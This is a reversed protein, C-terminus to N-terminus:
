DSREVLIFEHKSSCNLFRAAILGGFGGGLIVIPGSADSTLLSREKWDVTYIPFDFSQHDTTSVSTFTIRDLM